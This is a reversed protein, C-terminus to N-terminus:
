MLRAPLTLSPRVAPGTALAEPEYSLATQHVMITEFMAAILFLITGMAQPGLVNWTWGQPFMDRIVPTIHLIYGVLALCFTVRSGRAILWAAGPAILCYTVSETLPGFLTMWIGGLTVTMAAAFPIGRRKRAILILCAMGLGAIVAVGRVTTTSPITGLWTRCLITWDRPAREDSATHLRDDRKSWEWLETHQGAVYSPNHLVFPLALLVVVALGLRGFMARPAMLSGLLGVALPYMKIGAALAFAIASATYQRRVVEATGILVLGLIHLNAQGNNFCQLVLPLTLCAMLPFQGTATARSFQWLGVLFLSVGIWRWLLASPREPLKALTSHLAAFIPPYRYVDHPPAPAYLSEGATWREGGARYVPVVSQKVPPVTAVRISVAVILIIWLALALRPLSFTMM